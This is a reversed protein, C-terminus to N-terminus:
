KCEHNPEKANVQYYGDDTYRNVQEVIKEEVEKAKDPDIAKLTSITRELNRLRAM